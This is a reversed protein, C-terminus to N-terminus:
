IFSPTTNTRKKFAYNFASKSNFGVECYIEQDSVYSLILDLEASKYSSSDYLEAIFHLALCVLLILLHQNRRRTSAPIINLIFLLILTVSLTFITILNSCMYHLYNLYLASFM